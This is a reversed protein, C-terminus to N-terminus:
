YQVAQTINKAYVSRIVDIDQQSIYPMEYDHDGIMGYEMVSGVRSAHELGLLHGFEHIALRVLDVYPKTPRESEQSASREYTYQSGNLYVGSHIISVENKDDNAWVTTALVNGPKKSSSWDHVLAVVNLTQLRWDDISTNGDYTYHGEEIRILEVDAANNWQQAAIKVKDIEAISFGTDAQVLVPLNEWRGHFGLLELSKRPDLKEEKNEKCRYVCPNPRVGCSVVMAAFFIEACSKFFKM